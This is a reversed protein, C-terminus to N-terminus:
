RLRPEKLVTLALGDATPVVGIAGMTAARPALEPAGDHAGVVVPTVGLRLSRSVGPAGAELAVVAAPDAVGLSSLFDLAAADDAPTTGIGTLRQSPLTLRARRELQELETDDACTWLAIRRPPTDRLIALAGRTRRVLRILMARREDLERRAAELDEAPLQSPLQAHLGAFREVIRQTPEAHAAAVVTAPDAGIRTAWWRWLPVHMADVDILPGLPDIVILQARLERSWLGVDRMM